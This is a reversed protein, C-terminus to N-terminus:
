FQMQLVAKPPKLHKVEWNTPYKRWLPTHRKKMTGILCKLAFM